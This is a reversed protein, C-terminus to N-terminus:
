TLLSEWFCQSNNKHNQELLYAVMAFPLKQDHRILVSMHTCETICVWSHPIRGRLAHDQVM